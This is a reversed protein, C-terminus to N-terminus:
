GGKRFTRLEIHFDLVTQREDVNMAFLVVDRRQGVPVVEEVPQNSQGVEEPLGESSNPQSYLVAYLRSICTTVGRWAVRSKAAQEAADDTQM